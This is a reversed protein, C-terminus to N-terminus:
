DPWQKATDSLNWDTELEHILFEISVSDRCACACAHAGECEPHSEEECPRCRRRKTEAPREFAELTTEWPLISATRAGIPRWNNLEADWVM